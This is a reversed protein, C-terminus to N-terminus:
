EHYEKPKTYKKRHERGGAGVNKGAYTNTQSHCNPCLLRLNTINNNSSNGDTHDIQLTIPKNNYEKIGCEECFYGRLEIIYSKVWAPIAYKWKSKIGGALWNEVLEQRQKKNQCTISCYKNTKQRVFVSEKNCVLCNYTKM